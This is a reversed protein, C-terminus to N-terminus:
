EGAVPGVPGVETQAQTTTPATPFRGGVATQLEALAIAYDRAVDLYLRRQKILTEQSEILVLISQEGTQYLRRAAEVNDDWQPLIKDRYYRVQEAANRAVATTQQVQNAVTDLLDEYDKRKEAVKYKGKAIQAQNQDFIPLTIDISPGLVTEIFERRARDRQARSEIGPATLKGNAVSERATDALIKRGPLSRDEMRELQAGVSINPVFKLMELVLEQESAAVQAQIIKADIRQTMAWAILTADDSLPAPKPLADKLELTKTSRSLGLARALAADAVQHDRQLQIAELQNDLLKGRTLNVDLQSAEGAKFRDMALDMSQQALEINQRTIVEAQQIALVQYCKVKVEGTLEIARRGVDLVTEELQANAIKKKIPIQWLDVLQQAFGANLRSKGGGEPMMGSFSLTPNSLLGSQVVDARSAGVKQFLAQFSRNNLLAVRVAEDVTLGDALLADVKGDVLEDIAPSYGEQAGTREEILRQGPRFRVSPERHCV